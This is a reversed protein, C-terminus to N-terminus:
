KKVLINRPSCGYKNKFARRFSRLCGFGCEYCAQTVTIERNELLHKAYTVRIDTLYSVFSVGMYKKFQRCFHEQSYGTYESVNKLSINDKFHLNIYEIASHIEKPMQKVNAKFMQLLLILVTEAIKESILSYFKDKPNQQVLIDFADKLEKNSKILCADIEAIGSYARNLNALRFHITLTKVKSNGKYGHIDLPTVFSIDGKEFPYEKGNIECVGSGECYYEIEYFDHSHQKFNLFSNKSVYVNQTLEKEFFLVEPYVSKKV